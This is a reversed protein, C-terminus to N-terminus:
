GGCISCATLGMAKAESLTSRIQSQRLYRCGSAHYKEGTNTIYVVQSRLASKRAAARKAAARKAAVKKAAAAKKVTAAKKAVAVKAAAAKKDAAVKDAMAKDAAAKDATVQAASQAAQEVSQTAPEATVTATQAQAGQSLPAVTPTVPTNATCGFGSCLAVVLMLAIGSRLVLKNM